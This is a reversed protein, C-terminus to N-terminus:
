AVRIFRAPVADVLWVGNDSRYFAIGESHMLAADVELIVVRGKRMGVRRATELDPSLHVHHRSMRQLGAELIAAVVGENTGHYLVAPPKAPELQLDVTTSHGQNARIKLGTEDISFRQKDNDRVVEELADRSIRFGRKDLGKLLDDILVWGGPELQLGLAEPEHRLHKSMIKSIRVLENKM